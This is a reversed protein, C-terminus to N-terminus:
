HAIWEIGRAASGDAWEPGLVRDFVDQNDESVWTRAHVGNTIHGIGDGIGVGAFLSRSVEGHLASVGNAASATRLGMAAMNFREPHVPDAGIPWFAEVDVGWRATWVALYPEILSREFRDIGAPVPTHTTFM